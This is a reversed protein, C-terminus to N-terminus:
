RSKMETIRTKELLEIFEEYPLPKSYYYGQISHCNISKLFEVQEVAEVGEVTVHLHLRKALSVIHKVLENGSYEGIYDVISKDVKLTSFPLINLSALSSYGSGFDDLHLKFGHSCFNDMLQCIDKNSVTASETIELPVYKANVGVYDLIGVYEEVIQPYYLSVRSLNISIPVTKMGKDLRQKQMECVTRFVYTDLRRILGDGEFLPIFKYPPILKGDDERLRILAEAGMMSNDFPDFKPQYWVEFNRNMIYRDFNKELGSNELFSKTYQEGYVAYLEDKANVISKLAIRAKGECDIVDDGDHYAIMGFCAELTPINETETLEKLGRNIAKFHKVANEEKTDDIFLAYIDAGFHAVIDDDHMRKKIRESIKKLLEDGTKFGIVSQIVAFNKVSMVVIFGAETQQQMARRFGERNLDGTIPDYYAVRKLDAQQRAQQRRADFFYYAFALVALAIVAGMTEYVKTKLYQSQQTLFAQQLLVVVYLENGKSDEDLFLPAYFLNVGGDREFYMSTTKDGNVDAEYRNRSVKFELGVYNLLDNYKDWFPSDNGAAVINGKSDVIAATAYRGFFGRELIESFESNPLTEVVVGEIEGRANWVPASVVNVAEHRDSIYDSLLSTIIIKGKMSQEFYERMAINGTTGDSGYYSGDPYAFGLRLFNQFKQMKQRQHLIRKLERVDETRGSLDEAMSLLFDHHKDVMVSLTEVNQAVHVNVNRKIERENYKNIGNGCYTVVSIILMFVVAFVSIRKLSGASVKKM